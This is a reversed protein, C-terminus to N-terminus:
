TLSYHTKFLFLFSTKLSYFNEDDILVNRIDYFFFNSFIVAIAVSLETNRLIWINVIEGSDMFM